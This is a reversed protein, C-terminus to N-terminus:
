LQILEMLVLPTIVWSMMLLKKRKPTTIKGSKTVKHAKGGLITEGGGTGDDLPESIVKTGVPM